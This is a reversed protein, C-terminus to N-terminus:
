DVRGKRPPVTDAMMHLIVTDMEIWGGRAPNVDAIRNTFRKYGGDNLYNTFLMLLKGM